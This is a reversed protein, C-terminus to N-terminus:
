ADVASLAAIFAEFEEHCNGCRDLHERIIPMATDADKGQLLMEAFEDLKEFCDDCGIEDNQTAAISRVMKKLVKLELKM